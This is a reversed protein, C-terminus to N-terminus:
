KWSFRDVQDVSSTLWELETPSANFDIDFSIVFNTGWCFTLVNWGTHSTKARRCFNLKCTSFSVGVFTTESFTAALDREALLKDIEKKITNNKVRLTFVVIPKNPSFFARDDFFRGFYSTTTIIRISNWEILIWPTTTSIPNIIQSFFLAALISCYVLKTLIFFKSGGM